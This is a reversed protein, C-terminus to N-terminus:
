QDHTDENEINFDKKIETDHIYRQTHNDLTVLIHTRGYIKWWSITYDHKKKTFCIDIDGNEHTFRLIVDDGQEKVDQLSLNPHGLLHIQDDLLFRIPMNSANIRSILNSSRQYWYVTGEYTLMYIDYKDYEYRIGHKRNVKIVGSLTVVRGNDVYRKEIFNAQLCQHTNLSKEISQILNQLHQYLQQTQQHQTPSIDQSQVNNLVCMICLTCMCICTTYRQKSLLRSLTKNM